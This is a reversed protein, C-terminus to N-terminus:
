IAAGTLRARRQEREDVLRQVCPYHIREAQEISFLLCQIMSQLQTMIGDVQGAFDRDHLLALARDLELELELEVAETENVRTFDFRWCSRAGATDILYLSRRDRNRLYFVPTEVSGGRCADDGAPIEYSAAVLVMGRGGLVLPAEAHAMAPRKVQRKCARHGHVHLIRGGPEEDDDRQVSSRSAVVQVNRSRGMVEFLAYWLGRNLGTQYSGDPAASGFRLEVELENPNHTGLDRVSVLAAVAHRVARYLQENM